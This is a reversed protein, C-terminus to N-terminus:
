TTGASRKKFRRLTGADSAAEQKKESAKPRVAARKRKATESSADSVQNEAVYDSYASKPPPEAFEDDLYHHQPVARRTGSVIADTMDSHIRAGAGDSTFVAPAQEEVLMCYSVFPPEIIASPRPQNMFSEMSMPGGFKQLSTREPAAVVETVGYIENVMKHFVNLQHWRDFHTQSLIFAKVCSLTCFLGYVHYEGTTGDLCKPASYAPQSPDIPECCHWCCPSTFQKGDSLRHYRAAVPRRLGSATKIIRTQVGRETHFLSTRGLATKRLNPGGTESM